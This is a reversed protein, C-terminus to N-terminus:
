KGCSNCKGRPDMGITGGCICAWLAGFDEAMEPHLLEALEQSKPRGSTMAVREAAAAFLDVRASM